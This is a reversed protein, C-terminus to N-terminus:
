HVMRTILTALRQASAPEVDFPVRPGTAFFAFSKGHTVVAEVLPGVVGFVDLHTLAVRTGGTESLFSLWREAEAGDFAAPLVVLPELQPIKALMMTVMRRVAPDRIDLSPTEAFVIDCTSMAAVAQEIARSFSQRANLYHCPLQAQECYLGLSFAERDYSPSAVIGVNQRAAEKFKVALKAILTSTGVGPPGFCVIVRKGEHLTADCGIIRQLGEAVVKSMTLPEKLLKTNLEGQIRSIFGESLGSGELRAHLEGYGAWPQNEDRILPSPVGRLEDYLAGSSIDDREEDSEIIQSRACVEYRSDPLERTSIIEATPGLEDEIQKLITDLVTGTYRRIM